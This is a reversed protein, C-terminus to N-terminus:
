KGADHERKSPKDKGTCVFLALSTPQIKLAKINKRKTQFLGKKTTTRM